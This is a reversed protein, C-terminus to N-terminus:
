PKRLSEHKMNSFLSKKRYTDDDGYIFLCSGGSIKDIIEKAKETLNTTDIMHSFPNTVVTAFFAPM